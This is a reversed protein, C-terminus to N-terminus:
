KHALFNAGFVRFKRATSEKNTGLFCDFRERLEPGRFGADGIV